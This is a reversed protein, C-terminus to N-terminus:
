YFLKESRQKEKETDQFVFRFGSNKLSNDLFYLLVDLYSYEILKTMTGVLCLNLRYFYLVRLCLVFVLEFRRSLCICRISQCFLGKFGCTRRSRYRKWFYSVIHCEEHCCIVYCILSFLIKLAGTLLSLVLSSTFFAGKSSACM